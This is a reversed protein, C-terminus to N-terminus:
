EIIGKEADRVYYTIYFYTDANLQKVYDKLSEENGDYDKVQYLIKTIVGFKMKHIEELEM